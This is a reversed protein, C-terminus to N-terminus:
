NKAKSGKLIMAERDDASTGNNMNNTPSRRKGTSYNFVM